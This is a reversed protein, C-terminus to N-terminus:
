PLLGDTAAVKILEALLADGAVATGQLGELTPSVKGSM